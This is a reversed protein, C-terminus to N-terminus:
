NKGLLDLHDSAKTREAVAVCASNGGFKLPITMLLDMRLCLNVFLQLYKVKDPTKSRQNEINKISM